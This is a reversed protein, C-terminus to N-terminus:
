AAYWFANTSSTTTGNAWGNTTLTIRPPPVRELEGDDTIRVTVFGGGRAKSVAMCRKCLPQGYQMPADWDPPRGCLTKGESRVGFHLAKQRSM